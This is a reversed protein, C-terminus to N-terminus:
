TEPRASERHGSFVKQAASISLFICFSSSNIFLLPKIKMLQRATPANIADGADAFGTFFDAPLDIDFVVRIAACV